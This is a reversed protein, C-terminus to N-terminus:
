EGVEEAPTAAIVFSYSFEFRGVGNETAGTYRPNSTLPSAQLAIIYDECDKISAGSGNLSITGSGENFSISDIEITRSDTETVLDLIQETITPTAADASEKALFSNNIATYIGSMLKTQKLAESRRIIEPDNVYDSLAKTSDKVLGEQWKFLGVPVALLLVLVVLAAIWGRKPRERKKMKGM